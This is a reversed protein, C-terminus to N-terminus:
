SRFSRGEFFLIISFFIIFSLTLIDVQNKGATSSSPSVLAAEEQKEKNSVRTKKKQINNDDPILSTILPKQKVQKEEGPHPRKRKSCSNAAVASSLTAKEEEQHKEGSSKNEEGLLSMMSVKQGFIEQHVSSIIKRVEYQYCETANSVNSRAVPKDLVADRGQNRQDIELNHQRIGVCPLTGKQGESGTTQMGQSINHAKTQAWPTQGEEHVKEDDRYPRDSGTLQIEPCVYEYHEATKLIDSRTVAGPLPLDRKANLGSIGQVEQGNDRLISFSNGLQNGPGTTHTVTTINHAKSTQAPAVGREQHLHRNEVERNCNELPKIESVESEKVSQAVMGDELDSPVYTISLAQNICEVPSNSRSTLHSANDKDKNTPASEQSDGSSTFM